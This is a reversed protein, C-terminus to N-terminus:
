FMISNGAGRLVNSRNGIRNTTDNSFREADAQGTPTMAFGVPAPGNMDAVSRTNFDVSNNMANVSPARQKTFSNNFGAERPDRAQGYKAMREQLEMTRDMGADKRPSSPQSMFKKQSSVGPILSYNNNDYNKYANLDVKNMKKEVSTMNGYGRIQNNLNKQQDLMNRYFEQQQKKKAAMEAQEREHASANAKVLETWHDDRVQKNDQNQQIQARLQQNYSNLSQARKRAEEVLRQEENQNREQEDKMQKKMLDIQKQSAPSAVQDNYARNMMRQFENAHNLKDKLKAIDRENNITPNYNATMQNQLQEYKHDFENQKQRMAKSADLTNKLAEREKLKRM